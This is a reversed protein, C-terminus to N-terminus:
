CKVVFYISWLTTLPIFIILQDVGLHSICRFSTFVAIKKRCTHGNEAMVSLSAFLSPFILNCISFSICVFLFRFPHLFSIYISVFLFKHPIYLSIYLSICAHLIHFPHFFTIYLSLFCVHLFYCPHLPHSLSLNSICM